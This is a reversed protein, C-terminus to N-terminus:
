IKMERWDTMKQKIFNLLPRMEEKFGQEVHADIIVATHYWLFNAIQHISFKSLDKDESIIKAFRQSIEKYKKEDMVLVRM